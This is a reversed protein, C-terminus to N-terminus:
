RTATTNFFWIFSSCLVVDCVLNMDCLEKRCLQAYTGLPPPTGDWPFEPLRVRGSADAAHRLVMALHECDLRPNLALSSHFFVIKHINVRTKNLFLNNTKLQMDFLRWQVDLHHFLFVNRFDSYYSMSRFMCTYAIYINTLLAYKFDVFCIFRNSFLLSSLSSSAVRISKLFLLAM